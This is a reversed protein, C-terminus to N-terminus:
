MGSSSPHTYHVGSYNQGDPIRDWVMQSEFTAPANCLGFPMVTFEFGTRHQECRVCRLVRTNAAKRGWRFAISCPRLLAFSCLRRLFSSWLVLPFAATNSSNSRAIELKVLFCKTAWSMVPTTAVIFTDSLMLNCQRLKRLHQCHYSSNQGIHPLAGPFGIHPYM